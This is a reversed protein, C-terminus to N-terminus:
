QFIRRGPTGAKKIGGAHYRTLFVTSVISLDSCEREQEIDM